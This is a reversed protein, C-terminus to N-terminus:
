LLMVLRHGGNLRTSRIDDWISQAKEGERNDRAALTNEDQTVTKLIPAFTAYLDETTDSRTRRICCRFPMLLQSRFLSRSGQVEMVGAHLIKGPGGPNKSWIYIDYYDDFGFSFRRYNDIEEFFKPGVYKETEWAAKANSGYGYKSRILWLEDMSPTVIIRGTKGDRVLILMRPTQMSMYQTFRRSVPHNRKMYTCIYNRMESSAYIRRGSLNCARKSVMLMSAENFTVYSFFVILLYQRTGYDEAWPLWEPSPFYRYLTLINLEFFEDCSKCLEVAKHLGCERVMISFHLWGDRKMAGKEDIPGFDISACIKKQENERQQAEEEPYERAWQYWKQQRSLVEVWRQTLRELAKQVTLKQTVLSKLYKEHGYDMTQAYFHGHHLKRAKIVRDSLAYRKFLHHHIERLVAGDKVAVFNENALKTGSNALYQPPSASLAGLQANRRKTAKTYAQLSDYVDFYVLHSM